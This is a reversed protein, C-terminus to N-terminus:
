ALLGLMGLGELIVFWGQCMHLRLERPGCDSDKLNVASSCLIVVSFLDIPKFYLWSACDLGGLM